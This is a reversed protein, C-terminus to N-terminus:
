GKRELLERAREVVEFPTINLLCARPEPFRKYCNSCPLPKHLVLDSAAYPGNRAPDTPGILCLVRAGLAHALHIPGTDGGLVLRSARLLAALFAFPGADVARAAGESHEVISQALHDEGPAIPVWVAFGTHRELEKAVRGWWSPPYTKNAWGAGAQIVVFPRRRASLFDRAEAPAGALIHEGGFDVPESELGLAGLLALGHDVAHLGVSDGIEVRENIWWHSSPERRHRAAAGITRPAGSCRALLAGKYNGMLDLTVDARFERLARWARGVENRTASQFPERRWRRMSVTVLTDIGPHDALLPAFAAEVVWGVRADPLQRRLAELVPLGHM